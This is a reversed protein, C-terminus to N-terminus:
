SLPHQSCRQILHRGWCRHFIPHARLTTIQSTIAMSLFGNLWRYLSYDFSKAAEPTSVGSETSNMRAQWSVEAGLSNGQYSNLTCKRGSIRTSAPNNNIASIIPTIAPDSLIEFWPPSLLLDAGGQKVPAMNKWLHPRFMSTSVARM